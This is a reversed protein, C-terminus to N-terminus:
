ETKGGSPQPGLLLATPGTPKTATPSAAGLDPGPYSQQQTDDHTAKWFQNQTLILQVMKDLARLSLCVPQGAPTPPPQAPPQSTSLWQELLSTHFGPHAPDEILGYREQQGGRYAVVRVPQGYWPHGVLTVYRKDSTLREQM